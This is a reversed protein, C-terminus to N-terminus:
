PAEWELAYIERISAERMFYPSDDPGLGSWLGLPSPARELGAFDAVRELKKDSIRVRFYAPDRSLQSDFYLYQGDRSWNPYSVTMEVVLDSWTQTSFDYLVLKESGTPMAAISKGDPSWRPSFLGESGPLTIVKRTSLDLIRIASGERDGGAGGFVLSDGDPSWNPDWEIGEGPLLQEPTGGDAGVLYIKWAQGPARAFFAVQKGDPSWRPLYPQLPPFTLQLRESGDARSRWMSGEPYTVYAVWTGDPSFSLAMASLGRLFPLFQRTRADYRVFEARPQAGMTYIRKGDSSPLPSLNHMPGTTLQVPEQGARRLFGSRDPLAWINYLGERQASFLFYKGDRTWNGCCENPPTNWGPLLPRLSTGDAAVEWLSESSTRPDEVSFRLHRGDPSWRLGFLRGPATALKRPERGDRGVIFLDNGTAFAIRNGDPSWAGARGVINGLRRPSGGLVPLMWLPTGRETGAFSLVLLESGDPSIDLPFVNQFPTQLLVTDGGGASVQALRSNGEPFVRFYLRTGDTLLPGAKGRGDNTIQITRLVRPPPLPRTLLFAALGAAVIVVLAVAALVLGRRSYRRDAVASDERREDLAAVPTASSAAAVAASRGSDTDRKLRKLDARLEAASQYRLDRDKELLKNIIDELKPPLEPNLRVPATPAQNLIANFIAASTNGAFPLRGTAMEYLVVGFSFLDTRADLEQGLAQEPSMYAITGMTTGPSTLNEEAFGETPMATVGVAEAVRRPAVKALGFDLIKAQGRATVFINAPKIDRHVIGKSHAADLADAIQIALDLLTDLQLPARHAGVEGGSGRRDYVAAVAGIVHKLTQGELYQMAIFPQGDHEGVEYITCINPHDLASAARAERTFRELAQPERSVAEPLFKLAVFRGLKTDEAKYVVGMGGGGLKELIRYHVVSQGIM